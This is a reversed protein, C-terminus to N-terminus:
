AARTVAFALDAATIGNDAGVAQVYQEDDLYLGPVHMDQAHGGVRVASPSGRLGAVQDHVVAVPDGRKAEDDPVPVGNSAIKVASPTFVTL